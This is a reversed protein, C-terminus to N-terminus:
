PVVEISGASRGSRKNILRTFGPALQRPRRLGAKRRPSGVVSFLHLVYARRRLRSELAWGSCLDAILCERGREM